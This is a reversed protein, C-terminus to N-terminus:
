IFDMLGLIAMETDRLRRNLEENEQQLRAIEQEPTKIIEATAWKDLMDDLLEQAREQTPIREGRAYDVDQYVNGFEGEITFVWYGEEHQFIRTSRGM